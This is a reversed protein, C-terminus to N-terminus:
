APHSREYKQAVRWVFHDTDFQLTIALGRHDRTDGNQVKVLGPAIRAPPRIGGSDALLGGIPTRPCDFLKAIQHLPEGKKWRGWVLTRQTGTSCISPGGQTTV